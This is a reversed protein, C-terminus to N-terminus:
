FIPTQLFYFILVMEFWNLTLNKYYYNSTILMKPAKICLICPLVINFMIYLSFYM